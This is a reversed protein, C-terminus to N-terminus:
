KQTKAPCLVERAQSVREGLRGQLCSLGHSLIQSILSTIGKFAFRNVRYKKGGEWPLLFSLSLFLGLSLEVASLGLLRFAQIIEHLM